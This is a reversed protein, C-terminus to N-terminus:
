IEIKYPKRIVNIAFLLVMPHHSILRFPWTVADREPPPKVHRKTALLFPLHCTPLRCPMRRSLLVLSRCQDTWHCGATDGGTRHAGAGRLALRRDPLCIRADLVPLDARLEKHLCRQGRRGDPRQRQGRRAWAAPLLTMRMPSNPQPFRPGPPTTLARVTSGPWSEHGHAIHKGVMHSTMAGQQFLSLRVLNLHVVGMTKGAQVAVLLPLRRTHWRRVSMRRRCCGSRSSRRHSWCLRRCWPGRWRVCPSCQPMEDVALRLPLIFPM